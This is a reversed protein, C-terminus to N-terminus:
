RKVVRNHAMERKDSTAYSSVDEAGEAQWSQYCAARDAM